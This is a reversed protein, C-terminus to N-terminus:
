LVSRYVADTREAQRSLTFRERQAQQLERASADRRLHDEALARLEAAADDLGAGPPYLVAGELDALTELHGGAATAVTPLGAAMAEVVTLGLGEIPCPAILVGSRRMLEAVDTRHGLFSIHGELGLDCALQELAALQSGAGALKMSWGLAPLGSDAFIHLADDTAKEPELRQVVLATRERARAPLADPQVPVGPHVVVSRGEVRDAVYESIAIQRRVRRLVPRLVLRAFVNRGRPRAFHRTVVLPIHTGMLALSSVTEAVTMHAHVVDPMLRLTRRVAAITQLTTGGQLHAVRPELESRMRDPDGGIVWVDDGATAQASALMAVHREVGAFAPSQIVHVIRM